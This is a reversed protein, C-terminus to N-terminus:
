LYATRKKTIVQADKPNGRGAVARRIAAPANAACPYKSRGLIRMYPNKALISPSIAPYKMENRYPRLISM